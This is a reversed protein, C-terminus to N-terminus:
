KLMIPNVKAHVRFAGKLLVTTTEVSVYKLHVVTEICFRSEFMCEFFHM